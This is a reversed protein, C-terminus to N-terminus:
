TGMSWSALYKKQEATLKDIKVNMSALKEKAIAKDIEEPVPYVDKKFKKKRKVMYEVSLAQNAFSMDMVSSPHGEAAALNILRGDGLVNIRKDNKLMFEEVFPRIIRHSKTISKLGELDLEVNFHGSNAVIAGDKMVEFHEKRIVNINGTVTCFFDGIRAAQRIPMVTFADMVAELATTPDVETVIVNAGMGCARMALGKGCWGYGCVVFNSGAILRNTARIIGDVTSQGTGYRNDFFHKTRADNVAIIPYQLVGNAAMSRLRIIGTTTEETGGNVGEILEQRESHITSVLDAGDDMTYHPKIDIASHIHKYYTKNDEGKIAFVSIKDHKVLSAAVDDQTSLPNSACLSVEAGGAKLTQMLSATETTVHLCAAIRKGKLPKENAFRKKINNLVPMSQNAWEVRLLGEKALKIDKIDYEM